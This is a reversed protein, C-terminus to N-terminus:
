IIVKVGSIKDQFNELRLPGTVLSYSGWVACMSLTRWVWPGSCSRSALQESERTALPSNALRHSSVFFTVVAAKPLWYVCDIRVQNLLM